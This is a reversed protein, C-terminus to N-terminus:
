ISFDRYAHLIIPFTDIDASLLKKLHPELYQRPFEDDPYQTVIDIAVKIIAEFGAKDGKDLAHFAFPLYYYASIAFDRLNQKKILRKKYTKFAKLWDEATKPTPKLGLTNESYRQTAKNFYKGSYTEIMEAMNELRNKTTAVSQSSAFKWLGLDDVHKNTDTEETSMLIAIWQSFHINGVWTSPQRKQWKLIQGSQVGFHCWLAADVVSHSVFVFARIYDEGFADETGNIDKYWVWSPNSNAITEGAYAWGNETFYAADLQEPLAKLMGAMKGANKVSKAHAVLLKELTIKFDLLYRLSSMDHPHSQDVMDKEERWKPLRLYGWDEKYKKPECNEAMERLDKLHAHELRAEFTANKWVSDTENSVELEIIVHCLYAYWNMALTTSDTDIAIKMMDRTLTFENPIDPPIEPVKGGGNLKEWLAHGYDYFFSLDGNETKHVYATEFDRSPSKLWLYGDVNVTDLQKIIKPHSFEPHEALPREFLFGSEMLIDKVRFHTYGCDHRTQFAYLWQFYTRRENRTLSEQAAIMRVSDEILGEIEHQSM